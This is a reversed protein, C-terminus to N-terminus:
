FCQTTDTATIHLMYNQTFIDIPSTVVSVMKSKSLWISYSWTWRTDVKYRYLFMSGIYSNVMGWVCGIQMISFALASWMKTCDSIKQSSAWYQFRWYLVSFLIWYKIKKKVWNVTVQMRSLHLSITHIYHSDYPQFM